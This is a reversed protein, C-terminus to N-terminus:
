KILKIKADSIESYVIINECKHYFENSIIEQSVFLATKVIWKGTSLSFHKEVDAIHKKIWASRRKHKTLYCPKGGDVFIEDYEQKMEYPNKAFSFDKVEGVIMVKKKPNLIFVDIDGLDNGNEDSIRKGNIKSLKKYVLLGNITELKKVVKSNFENGRQNSIKGLLKKLCPKRAKMKGEILLDITFKWMHHLQRNGWILDSGYQIIPRRTFSLERNFRWPYVDYKQYPKPPVLFDDRQQLSIHNIVEEVIESNIGTQKCIEETVLAREKRKVDSSIDRGIDYIAFVCRSFQQFTYGFEDVFAADIAEQYPDFIGLPSYTEIGPNSMSELQRAMAFSNVNSLYDSEEHSMGIRGSKLFRVPTNIIKFRFLDNKYAWDIILSCIALIRDYQMTGLIKSGKPPTSAIYEALFKLAVSSKNATNYEDIIEDEKEPYCSVDYAYRVHAQMTQYLVTELDYCVLDYLGDPNVTALEYQLLRYLYAVVQNALDARKENPVTGLSYGNNTLFFEGIEDLLQNEEESSIVVMDGHTPELYPSDSINFEIVRRKLPDAFRNDLAQYDAINKSLKDLETFISHMMDKEANQSKDGLLQFLSASWTMKIVNNEHEYQVLQEFGENIDLKIYYQEAPPMLSICFCITEFKFDMQNIISKAEALWYSISDMITNYVNIEKINRITDASLWICIRDFIVVLEPYKRNSGETCYINRHSDKLVVERFQENDYYPILHRDETKVARIVYDLSDGLTFYVATNRPSFDDSIYFSYDSSTYIEIANLESSLSPPLMCQLKSKANIYRPLFVKRKRENISICKLEFPSLKITHKTEDKAMNIVISRGFSNLIIIQYVKDWDLSPLKSIFYSTRDNTSPSYRENSYQGCMSRSSYEKGDDCIFHVCIIQDNGATLICEKRRRDNILSIGYAKNDIIRHGLYDLSKLCNKWIEDNYANIFADKVGFQDALLVLQHITFPVLISPNLIVVEGEGSILFPHAFFDEYRSDIADEISGTGFESFLLQRVSKDPILADILKSKVCVCDKLKGALSSDPVRVTEIEIHEISELGYGLKSAISNSLQLICNILLHAKSSFIKGFNLNRLCLVNIFGQFCYSPSYNIGPFIWYNGYYQVREIFANESPDVMRKLDLNEIQGILNRFKGASMKADGTYTCRDRSLIGAIVADFLTSKNQNEILLNLSSLRALFDFIDYKAIEDILIELKRTDNVTIQAQMNDM